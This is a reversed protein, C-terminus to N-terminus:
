SLCFLIAFLISFMETLSSVGKKNKQATWVVTKQKNTKEDLSAYSDMRDLGPGCSVCCDPAIICVEATPGFGGLELISM